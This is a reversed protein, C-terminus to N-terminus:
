LPIFHLNTSGSTNQSKASFCLSRALFPETFFPVTPLGTLWCGLFFALVLYRSRRRANGKMLQVSEGQCTGRHRQTLMSIGTRPQSCMVCRRFSCACICLPQRPSCTIANQTNTTIITLTTSTFGTCPSYQCGAWRDLGLGKHILPFTHFGESQDLGWPTQSPTLVGSFSHKQEERWTPPALCLSSRKLGSGLHSVGPQVPCRCTQEKNVM